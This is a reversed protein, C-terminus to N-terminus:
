QKRHFERHLGCRYVTMILIRSFILALMAAYSALTSASGRLFERWFKLLMIRCLDFNARQDFAVAFARPLVIEGVTFSM